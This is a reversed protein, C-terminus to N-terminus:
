VKPLPRGLKPPDLAATPDDSRWGESMAFRYFQRLASLRRAVTRPTMGAKALTTFYRRLDEDRADILARGARKLHNRLDDLDRTYAAVTNAAANREARLMEVFADLHRDPAVAPESARPSLPRSPSRARKR